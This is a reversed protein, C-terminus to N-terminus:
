CLGQFLEPVRQLSPPKDLVSPVQSGVQETCLRSGWNCVAVVSEAAATHLEQAVCKVNM